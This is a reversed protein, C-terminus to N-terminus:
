LPPAPLPGSFKKGGELQVQSWVLKKMAEHPKVWIGGTESWGAATVITMDLGLRDAEAATHKLLELWEPTMYKIKKGVSQGSGFSVDFAQFGGIGIRKM